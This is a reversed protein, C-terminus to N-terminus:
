TQEYQAHYTEDMQWIMEIWSPLLVCTIQRNEETIEPANIYEVIVQTKAIAMDHALTDITAGDANLDALYAAAVQRFLTPWGLGPVTIAVDFAPVGYGIRDWDFLVVTGDARIGWNSVNADGAIVCHPTFLNRHRSELRALYDLTQAPVYSQYQTAVPQWQLTFPQPIPFTAPLAHLRRLTAMVASDAVWRAHPLLAPFDERLVWHEGAIEGWGMVRPVAVSSTELQPAVEQHFSKERSQLPGKLIATGWAYSLRHLHVRSQGGTLPEVASPQRFEHPLAALIPLLTPDSM